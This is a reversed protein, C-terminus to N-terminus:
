SIGLSFSIANRILWSRPSWMTWQYQEIEFLHPLLMHDIGKKRLLSRQPNRGIYWVGGGSSRRDDLVAQLIKLLM